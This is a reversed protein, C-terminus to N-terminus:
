FRRYASLYSDYLKPNLNRVEDDWDFDYKETLPEFYTASKGDTQPNGLTKKYNKRSDEVYADINDIIHSMNLDFYDALCRVIWKPWRILDEYYFFTKHCTSATYVELVKMYQKFAEDIKEKDNQDDDRSLHSM